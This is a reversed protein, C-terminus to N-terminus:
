CRLAPSPFCIADFNSIHRRLKFSSQSSCRGASIIFYAFTFRRVTITASSRSANVNFEVIEVDAISTLREKLEEDSWPRQLGSVQIVTPVKPEKPVEAAAAAAGAAKPKGVTTRRGRKM